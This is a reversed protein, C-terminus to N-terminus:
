LFLDDLTVARDIMEESYLTPKVGSACILTLFIQKLTSTKKTFVKLKNRLQAAQSKDLAYPQDTYKIECLNIAGDLRDFLLDIQAGLEDTGKTPIYRWADPIATPNLGLAKRIEPLHQYCISEFSYGAWAYWAGTTRLHAWYGRELSEKQLTDKIPEIWTLYFCTYEDILRYFIGKKKHFHPKFKMLFGTEALENLKKVATGGSSYYKSQKIIESQEIGYRNKAVIRLLDVYSDAEEFLSDFLNNFERFLIGNESFAIKEIIETASYGKEVSNLYYPVGGTVMYIESIQKHNLKAGKYNLFLEIEKLKFPKLQIKRTIRNHLGGKQNIIKRIIWAASSGCIILKIRNDKSWYHNWFYELGELLRSKRGVMWPFEDFFLIIKKDKEATEIARRLMDLSDYWNDQEKIEVGRYFTQALSSTFGRIQEKLTGKKQGTVSFFYDKKKAFFSQILYTKGIRRRGYLALFEAQKSQYTSELVESEELRGVLDM